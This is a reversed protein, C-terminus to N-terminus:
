IVMNIKGNFNNHKLKIRGFLEIINEKTFSTMASDLMEVSNPFYILDKIQWRLNIPKINLLIKVVAFYSPKSFHM